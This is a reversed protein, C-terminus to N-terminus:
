YKMIDDTRPHLFGEASTEETCEAHLLHGTFM